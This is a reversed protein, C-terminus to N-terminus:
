ANASNAGPRACMAQRTSSEDYGTAPHEGRVDFLSQQARATRYRALLHDIDHTDPVSAPM